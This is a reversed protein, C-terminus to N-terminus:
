EVLVYRKSLFFDAKVTISMKFRKQISTYKDSTQVTCILLLLQTQFQIYLFKYRNTSIEILM